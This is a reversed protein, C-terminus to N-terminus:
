LSLAQGALIDCTVRFLVLPRVPMLGIAAWKVAWTKVVCHSGDFATPPLVAGVSGQAIPQKGATEEGSTYAPVFFIEHEQKVGFAMKDAGSVEFMSHYALKVEPDKAKQEVVVEKVTTLKLLFVPDDCTKITFMHHCEPNYKGGVNRDFKGKGFGCLLSGAVIKIPKDSTNVVFMKPGVFVQLQLGVQGKSQLPVDELPSSSPLAKQDVIKEPEVVGGAEQEVGGGRGSPLPRTRTTTMVVAPGQRRRKRRRNRKRRRRM